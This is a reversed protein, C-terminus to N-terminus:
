AHMGAARRSPGTSGLTVTPNAALATTVLPLLPTDLHIM